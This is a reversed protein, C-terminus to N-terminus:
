YIKLNIIFMILILDEILPTYTKIDNLQRNCENVYWTKDVITIGLNKDSPIYLINNDKKIKNCYKILNFVINTYNSPKIKQIPHRLLNESIKNQIGYLYTEISNSALPPKFLPNKLKYKDFVHASNNINNLYFKIRVLRAFNNFDTLIDKDTLPKPTPCFKLNLSLLYLINNNFKINTLNHLARNLIRPSNNDYNSHSLSNNNNNSNYMNNYLTIATNINNDNIVNIKYNTYVNINNVNHKINVIKRIRSRGTSILKPAWSVKKSSWSPLEQKTIEGKAM